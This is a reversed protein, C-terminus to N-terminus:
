AARASTYVAHHTPHGPATDVWRNATNEFLHLPTRTDALGHARGQALHRVM